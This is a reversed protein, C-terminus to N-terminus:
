ALVREVVFAEAAPVGVAAGRQTAMDTVGKRSRPHPWDRLEAAYEELAMMKKSLTDSIDVFYNPQFEGGWVTSCAVEFCLLRQVTCGPQPRCAVRTAEHTVRHDVNLDGSSHTYVVTPKFRRLHIEVHQVVQLLPVKDMQNDPFQVPWVDETGLIKCAKRLMLHRERVAAYFGGPKARSSVGDALLLISITDGAAAHKAITAGCGLTEDDPHAAVVLVRETM